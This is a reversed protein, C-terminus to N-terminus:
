LKDQEVKNQGSERVHDPSYCLGSFLCSLEKNKEIVLTNQAKLMESRLKYSTMM